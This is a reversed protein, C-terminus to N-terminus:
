AVFAERSSRLGQAMCVYGDGCGTELQLLTRSVRAGAYKRELRPLSDAQQYLM